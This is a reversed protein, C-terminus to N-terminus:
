FIDVGYVFHFVLFVAGLFIPIFIYTFVSVFSGFAGGLVSRRAAEQKDTFAKNGTMKFYINLLGYALFFIGLIVSLM